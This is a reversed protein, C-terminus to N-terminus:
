QSEAAPYIGTGSKRRGAIQSREDQFRKCSRVHMLVCNMMFDTRGPCGAGTSLNWYELILASCAGCLNVYIEIEYSAQFIEVKGQRLKSDKFLELEMHLRKSLLAKLEAIDM